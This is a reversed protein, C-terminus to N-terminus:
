ALNFMAYTDTKPRISSLYCGKSLGGEVESLICEPRLRLLGFM